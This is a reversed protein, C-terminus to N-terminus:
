TSKSTDIVNIKRKHSTLENKIITRIKDAAYELGTTMGMDLRRRLGKNMASELKTLLYSKIYEGYTEVVADAVRLLDAHNSINKKSLDLKEFPLEEPTKGLSDALQLGQTIQDAKGSFLVEFHKRELEAKKKAEEEDENEEDESLFSLEERIIKKLIKDTMKFKGEKFFDAQGVMSPENKRLAELIIKKLLKVTLKM